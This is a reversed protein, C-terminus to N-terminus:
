WYRLSLGVRAGYEPAVDSLNREQRHLEFTLKLWESLTLRTGFRYARNALGSESLATYFKTMGMGSRTPM